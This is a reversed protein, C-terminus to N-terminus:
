VRVVRVVIPEETKLYLRLLRECEDASIFTRAEIVSSLISYCNFATGIGRKHARYFTEGGMGTHKVIYYTKM